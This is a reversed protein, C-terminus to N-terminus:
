EHVKKPSRVNGSIVDYYWLGDITYTRGTRGDETKFWVFEVKHNLDELMTLTNMLERVRM